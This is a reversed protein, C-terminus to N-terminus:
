YNYLHDETNLSFNIGRIQWRVISNVQMEYTQPYSIDIERQFVSNGGSDYSFLNRAKDFKLFAGDYSSLSLDNYDAQYRGADLGANWARNSLVNNDRLNRVIEIGEQALNAALFKNAIVENLSITRVLLAVMALLSIVMLSIAILVEILTFGEKNEKLAKKEM